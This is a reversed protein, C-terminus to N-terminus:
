SQSSVRYCSAPGTTEDEYIIAIEDFSRRVRELHDISDRPPAAIIGGRTMEKKEKM